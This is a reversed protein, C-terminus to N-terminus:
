YRLNCGMCWQWQSDLLLAAMVSSALDDKNLLKALGFDGTLIIYSLCQEFVFPFFFFDPTYFIRTYAKEGLRIDNNKTLFINSCQFYVIFNTIAPLRLLQYYSSACVKLDRHIVRNSHLYDVAVLLQILWKCLKQFFIYFITHILHFNDYTIGCLSKWKM